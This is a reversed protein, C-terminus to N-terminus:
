NMLDQMTLHVLETDTASDVIRAFKQSISLGVAAQKKKTITPDQMFKDTRGLGLSIVCQLPHDPWIKHAEHIAIQTPNNVLIGGDQFVMDDHIFDDFYGPAATSARIAAWVPHQSSGNYSTHTKRPMQYSRFVYPSVRDESVETAVIAIKPTDPSRYFDKMKAQAAHKECLDQLIGEYLKTNYYSYSVVWGKAGYLINQKFIQAGMDNYLEGVREISL